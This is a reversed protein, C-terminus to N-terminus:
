RQQTIEVSAAEGLEQAEENEARVHSPFVSIQLSPAEAM